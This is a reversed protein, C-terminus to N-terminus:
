HFKVSGVILLSWRVKADEDHMSTEGNEPSRTVMLRVDQRWWQERFVTGMDFMQEYQFMLSASFEASQRTHESWHSHAYATLASDTKFTALCTEALSAHGEALKIRFREAIPDDNAQPQRLLYEKVSQLVFIVKGNQLSILPKCLSIYDQAAELHDM